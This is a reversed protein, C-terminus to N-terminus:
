GHIRGGAEIGAIRGDQLSVVRDVRGGLDREHTVLLVTRGQGAVDSLLDLVSESNRSDLNGTPEDAVLLEPDNALARAIAARQQQGGSLTLPLKTAQDAIGMRSLWHMAKDRATATPVGAFDLPLMANELVTLTPLLQFAQFVVGVSRGRWIALGDESLTKLRIGDVVVEGRTPRDLGAVLNALTSKGSGSRGVVAVFEGRAIDLDVSELAHIGGGGNPYSRGLGNLEIM